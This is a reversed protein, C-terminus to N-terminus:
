MQKTAKCASKHLFIQGVTKNKCPQTPSHIKQIRCRLGQSIVQTIRVNESCQQCWWIAGKPSCASHVTHGRLEELARKFCWRETGWHRRATFSIYSLNPLSEDAM